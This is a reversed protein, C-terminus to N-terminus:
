LGLVSFAEDIKEASARSRAGFRLLLFYYSLCKDTRQKCVTVFRSSFAQGVLGFSQVCLRRSHSPAELTLWISLEVREATTQTQDAALQRILNGDIPTALAKSGMTNERRRFHAFSAASSLIAFRVFVSEAPEFREARSGLVHMVEHLFRQDLLKPREAPFEV